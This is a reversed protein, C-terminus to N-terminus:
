KIKTLIWADKEYSVRVIEKIVFREISLARGSLDMETILIDMGSQIEKREKYKVVLREVTGGHKHPTIEAAITCDCECADCKIAIRTKVQTGQSYHFGDYCVPKREM